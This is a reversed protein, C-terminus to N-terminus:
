KEIRSKRAKRRSTKPRKLLRRLSELVEPEPRGANEAARIRADLWKIPDTGTQSLAQKLERRIASLKKPGMM